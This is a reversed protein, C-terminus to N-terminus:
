KQRFTNLKCGGIRKNASGVREEIRQNQLGAESNHRELDTIRTDRELIQGQLTAIQTDKESNQTQLAAIQTDKKSNQRQLVALDDQAVAGFVSPSKSVDGRGSSQAPM